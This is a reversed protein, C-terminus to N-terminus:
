KTFNLTASSLFQVPFLEKRQQAHANHSRSCPSYSESDATSADDADTIEDCIVALAKSISYRGHCFRHTGFVYPEFIQAYMESIQADPRANRAYDPVSNVTPKRLKPSGLQCCPAYCPM